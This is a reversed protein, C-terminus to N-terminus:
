RHIVQPGEIRDSQNPKVLLQVELMLVLEAM